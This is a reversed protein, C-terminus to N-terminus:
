LAVKETFNRFIEDRQTVHRLVTAVAGESSHAMM